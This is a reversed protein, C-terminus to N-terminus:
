KSLQAVCLKEAFEYDRTFNIMDATEGLLSMNPYPVYGDENADVHEPEYKMTPSKKETKVRCVDAVCNLWQRQYPGGKPTRTTEMNALNAAVLDLKKRAIERLQCGDPVTQPCASASSSVFLLASVITIWKM